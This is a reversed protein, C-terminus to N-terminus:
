GRRLVIACNTGGFAFSNKLAVEVRAAQPGARVFNLRCRPDPEELNRCPPLRQHRMALLTAVLEVGATAGMLHGLQAKTNSVPVRDSELGFVEEITSAEVIDAIETATGHANVYDVDAPAVGAMSLAARVAKAQGTKDPQGIRRADCSSGVGLIEAWVHAGRAQAVELPELVFGACGEGMVLGDRRADFPRSATAPDPNRSLVGLRNWASFTILDIGHDACAAVAAEAIGFRVRFFAEMVAISGTACACSVTFSVGTLRHRISAANAPRNLMARIISTPRLKRYGGGVYAEVSANQFAGNGHGTGFILDHPLEGGADALGANTLADAVAFLALRNARDPDDVGHRACAADLATDPIVGAIKTPLPSDDTVGPVRSIGCEGALLRKWFEDPTFGLACGVSVGTIVVRRPIM